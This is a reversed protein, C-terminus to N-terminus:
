AMGRAALMQRRRMEEERSPRSALRYLGYGLGLAGLAGVGAMGYGTWKNTKAVNATHQKQAAALAASQAKMAEPNALTSQIVPIAAASSLAQAMRGKRLAEIRGLRQAAFNPNSIMRQSLPQGLAQYYGPEKVAFFQAAMANAQQQKALQAKLYIDADMGKVDPGWKSLWDQSAALSSPRVSPVKGYFWGGLQEAWGPGVEAAAAKILFLCNENM